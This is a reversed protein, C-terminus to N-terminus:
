HGTQHPIRVRELTCDNGTGLSPKKPPFPTLGYAAHYTKSPGKARKRIRGQEIVVDYVYRAGEVEIEGFSQMHMKM